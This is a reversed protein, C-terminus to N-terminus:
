FPFDDEQLILEDKDEDVFIDASILKVNMREGTLKESEMAKQHLLKKPMIYVPHPKQELFPSKWNELTKKFVKKDHHFKGRFLKTDQHHDYVENPKNKFLDVKKLM